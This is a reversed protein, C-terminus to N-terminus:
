QTGFNSIVGLLSKIKDSEEDHFQAIEELIPFFKYLKWLKSDNEPVPFSM